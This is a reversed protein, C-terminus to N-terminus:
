IIEIKNNEVNEFDEIRKIKNLDYITSYVKSRGMGINRWTSLPLHTYKNHIDKINNFIEENMIELNTPNKIKLRWQYNKM